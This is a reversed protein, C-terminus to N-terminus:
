YELMQLLSRRKKQEKNPVTKLWTVRRNVISFQRNPCNPAFHNPDKCTYYAGKNQSPKNTTKLVHNVEKMEELIKATQNKMENMPLSTHNNLQDPMVNMCNIIGDMTTTLIAFDENAVSPRHDYRGMELVFANQSQPPTFRPNYPSKPSQKQAM